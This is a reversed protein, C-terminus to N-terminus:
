HIVSTVLMHLGVNHHIICFNEFMIFVFSSSWILAVAMGTVHIQTVNHLFKTKLMRNYFTLTVACYVM